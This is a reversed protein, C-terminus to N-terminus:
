LLRHGLGTERSSLVRTGRLGTQHYRLSRGGRKPRHLSRAWNRGFSQWSAKLRFSSSRAAEPFLSRSINGDKGFAVGWPNPAGRHTNDLPIMKVFKKAPIDVGSSSQCDLRRDGPQHRNPLQRQDRFSRSDDTPSIDLDYLNPVNYLNVTDREGGPRDATNRSTTFSTDARHEPLLNAM